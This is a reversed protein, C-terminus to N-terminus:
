ARTTKAVIMTCVQEHLDQLDQPAKSFAMKQDLRVRVKGLSEATPADFAPGMLTRMTDRALVETQEDTLAKGLLTAGRKLTEGHITVFCGLMAERAELPTIAPAAQAKALMSKVHM